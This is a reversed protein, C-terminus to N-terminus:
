LELRVFASDLRDRIRAVPVADAVIEDRHQEHNEVDLSYKHKWPRHNEVPQPQEAEDLHQHEDEDQNDTVVVRPLLARELPHLLRSKARPEQSEAKRGAECRPM